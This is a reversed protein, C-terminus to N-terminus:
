HCEVALLKFEGILDLCSIMLNMFTSKNCKLPFSILDTKDSTPGTLVLRLLPAALHDIEM